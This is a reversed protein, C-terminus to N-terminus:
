PTPVGGHNRAADIAGRCLVKFTNIKSLKMSVEELEARVVKGAAEDLALIERLVVAPAAPKGGGGAGDFKQIELLVQHRRVALASAEEANGAEVLAKQKRALELLRLCLAEMGGSM